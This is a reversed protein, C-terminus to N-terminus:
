RDGRNAELDLFGTSASTEATTIATKSWIEVEVAVVKIAVMVVAIAAMVVAAMIVITTM